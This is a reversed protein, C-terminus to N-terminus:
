RRLLVPDRGPAPAERKIWITRIARFDDGLTDKSYPNKSRNRFIPADPMIELDLDAM